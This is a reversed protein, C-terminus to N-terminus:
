ALYRLDIPLTCSGAEIDYYRLYSLVSWIWSIDELSLASEQQTAPHEAWCKPFKAKLDSLIMYILAEVLCFFSLAYVRQRSRSLVPDCLHDCLSSTRLFVAASCTPYGSALYLRQSFPALKLGPLALLYM